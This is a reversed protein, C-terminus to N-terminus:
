KGPTFDIDNIHELLMQGSGVIEGYAGLAPGYYKEFHLLRRRAENDGSMAAMALQKVLLFLDGMEKEVLPEANAMETESPNDPMKVFAFSRYRMRLTKLESATYKKFNPGPKKIKCLKGRREFFCLRYLPMSDLFGSSAGNFVQVFGGEYYKLVLTDTKNEIKFFDGEWFDTIKKNKCCDFIRLLNYDSSSADKYAFLKLSSKSFRKVIATNFAEFTDM